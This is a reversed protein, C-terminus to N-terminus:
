RPNLRPDSLWPIISPIGGARRLEDEAQMLETVAAELDLANKAKRMKDVAKNVMEQFHLILGERAQKKRRVARALMSDLEFDRLAYRNYSTMTEVYIAAELEATLDVISSRLSSIREEVEDISDGSWSYSVGSSMIARMKEEVSVLGSEIIEIHAQSASNKEAITLCEYARDRAERLQKLEKEVELEKLEGQASHLRARLENVSTSGSPDAFRLPNGLAYQYPNIERPDIAKIPDRSIFRGTNADYYRARVYYLGNGEDMVGYEGQWTFPNDLGGASSLMEGYPSYAYSGIVTGASDTLFLTNGMEDFHYDQRSNDAEEISYLLGGGPTHVYYRLDDGGETVVSVSSLGLAYNWVYSRTAGGETRSLRQGMADYTLTVTEADETYSTMRSALDWTYTRTGDDTLHGMGDYTSTSVQCAADYSLDQTSGTFAPEG